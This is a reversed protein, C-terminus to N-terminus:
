KFIQFNLIWPKRRCGSKIQKSKRVEPRNITIFGIPGEKEYLVVNDSM